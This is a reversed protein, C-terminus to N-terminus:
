ACLVDNFVAAHGAMHLFLVCRLGDRKKYNPRHWNCFIYHKRYCFGIAMPALYFIIHFFNRTLLIVLPIFLFAVAYARKSTQLFRILLFVSATLLFVLPYTYFPIIEFRFLIPNVIILLGGLFAAGLSVGFYRLISDVMLVMGLGLLFHISSFAFSLMSEPFVKLM